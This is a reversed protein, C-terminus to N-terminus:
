SCSRFKEGGAIGDPTLSWGFPVEKETLEELEFDPRARVDILM